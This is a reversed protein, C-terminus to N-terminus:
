NKDVNDKNDVKIILKSQELTHSLEEIRDCRHCYGGKICSKNCRIRKEAFRPIIYKNDIESNFDIIIENLKGFWKKDEKYIKYYTELKKDSNYFECTDIYDSYLDIDEPRIFFKKLAPMENFASTQAVNPYVRLKVGLKHAAIALKDLSFGLENIIYIDTVHKGLM